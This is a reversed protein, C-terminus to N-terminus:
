HGRATQVRQACSSPAAALVMMFGRLSAAWAIGLVAGILIFRIRDTSLGRPLSRRGATGADRGLGTLETRRDPDTHSTPTTAKSQSM